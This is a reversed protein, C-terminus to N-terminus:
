RAAASSRATRAPTRRSTARPSSSRAPSSPAPRASSSRSTARRDSHAVFVADVPGGDDVMEMGVSTMYARAPESAFPIVRMGARYAQVSRLPTLVQGDEVPLGAARLQEAFADPPLHSGNTFVAFPRGSAVIRDLVERAGPIAHVEEPGTRHVLTGDIDFVFGDSRTLVCPAM